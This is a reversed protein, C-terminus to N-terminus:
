TTAPGSRRLREDGPRWPYTGALTRTRAPEAVSALDAIEALERASLVAGAGAAGVAVVLLARRLPNLQVGPEPAPPSWLSGLAAWVFLSPVALLLVADFAGAVMAAAIVALLAAATMAEDADRAGFLRRWGSLALAGLTVALLVAAPLGRESIFAIWDSSPWPNATAGPTSRSMSPDDPAAYEPYEVSWNGPGVGLLPHDAAMVLSQRYQVLRGRGSGEQYNAVGRVSELYPNESRWSLDNPLYVAAATGGATLLLVGALRLWSRGDRRLPRSALMALAFVVLVAAFALWGARSRTLVLTAVVLMVGGAGVLYGAPRWARLAALLVLPFGFAALHAIFNRNGLTGGPARNLSFLSTEIGYAQLLSTGSAIVVGVALTVLLHRALGAERLARAAWFVGASSASMATARWALEADGAFFASGASIVVFGLLFLDAPRLVVRRFSGLLAAGALLVTLHLVLEKPVFFRDLEFAKNTSVALVVAFVGVQLVRLAFREAGTPGLAEPPEAAHDLLESEPERAVVDM